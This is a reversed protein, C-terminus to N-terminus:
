RLKISLGKQLKLRDQIWNDGSKNVTIGNGLSLEVANLGPQSVFTVSDTHPITFNFEVRSVDKRDRIFTGIMYSGDPQMYINGGKIREASTRAIQDYESITYNTLGTFKLWTEMYPQPLPLIASSDSEIWLNTAGNPIQVGIYNLPNFENYERVLYLDKPIRQKWILKIEHGKFTRKSSISYENSTVLHRKDASINVVIPAIINHGLDGCAQNSDLFTKSLFDSVFKSKSWIQIDRSSASDYITSIFNQIGQIGIINPLNQFLSEIIPSFASKPNSKDEAELSTLREIQLIFNDSNFAGVEPVNFAYNKPLISQIFQPNFLVLYDIDFSKPGIKQISSVINLASDRFCPYYNLNRLGTDFIVNTTRDVILQGYYDPIPNGIIYKTKDGDLFYISNSKELTVRGKFIDAPIYSGTFGGTPRAEGTNQNIILIKKRLKHGLADLVGEENEFLYDLIEIIEEAGIILSKLNYDLPVLKALVRFIIYRNWINLSKIYLDRAGSLFIELDDTFFRSESSTVILGKSTITYDSLPRALKFWQDLLEFVRDIEHDTILSIGAFHTSPTISNKLDSKIENLEATRFNDSVKIMTSIKSLWEPSREKLNQASINVRWLLSICFFVILVALTFSPILFSKTKNKKNKNRTKKKDTLSANERLTLLRESVGEM